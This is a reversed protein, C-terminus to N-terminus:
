KGNQAKAILLSQRLAEAEFDKGRSDRVWLGLIRNGLESNRKRFAAAAKRSRIRAKSESQTLDEVTTTAVTDATMLLRNPQKEETGSVSVLSAPLGATDPRSRRRKMAGDIRDKALEIYTPNIDILVAKRGLQTAVLGTTGAGCFPDLVIGSKPCGALICPEVLKPPFQAFHAGRVVQSNGISWVSRRNRLVFGNALFEANQKLKAKNLGTNGNGTRYTQRTDEQQYTSPVKTSGKERVAEHDYHYKSSKSLLFLYEHNRAPRDTVFEPMSNPIEWILDARLYWGDDRLANAVMWPIGILDKAKIKPRFSETCSSRKRNQAIGAGGYTDGLNLWLTGDKRLVRRVERFVTVLKEAYEEHTDEHGVQGQAGYDRHRFFPPSTICTQISQQPLSRLVEVCDGVYFSVSAQDSRL